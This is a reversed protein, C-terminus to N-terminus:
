LNGHHQNKSWVFLLFQSSELRTYPLLLFVVLIHLRQVVFPFFYFTRNCIYHPIIYYIVNNRIKLV